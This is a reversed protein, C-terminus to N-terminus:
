AAGEIKIFSAPDDWQKESFKKSKDVLVHGNADQSIAYRPLSGSKQAPGQTATGHFSFHSRHCKCYLDDATKQVVCAKHTCISSAAFLKGEQRIILFEGKGKAAWTDTVGDKSYSSLAGADVAGAPAAGAAPADAAAADLVPLSLVVATTAATVLFARRNM